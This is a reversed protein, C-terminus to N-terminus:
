RKALGATDRVDQVRIGVTRGITRVAAELLQGGGFVSGAEIEIDGVRGIGDSGIEVGTSGGARRFQRQMRVAILGEDGAARRQHVVKAGLVDQDVSKRQKM